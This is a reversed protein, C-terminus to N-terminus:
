VVEEGATAQEIEHRIQEGDQRARRSLRQVAVITAALLTVAVFGYVIFCRHFPVHASTKAGHGTM